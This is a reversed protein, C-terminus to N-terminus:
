RSTNRATYKIIHETNTISCGVTGAPWYLTVIVIKCSNSLVPKAHSVVLQECAATTHAEKDIIM